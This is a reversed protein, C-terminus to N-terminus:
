VAPGGVGRRTEMLADLAELEGEIRELRAADRGDVLKAADGGLSPRRLRALRLLRELCLSTRRLYDGLHDAADAYCRAPETGVLAGDDWAVESGLEGTGEM